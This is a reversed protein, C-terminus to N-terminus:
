LRLYTDVTPITQEGCCILPLKGLKTVPVSSLGQDHTGGISFGVEPHLLISSGRLRHGYSFAPQRGLVLQWSTTDCLSHTRLVM